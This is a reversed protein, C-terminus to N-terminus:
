PMKHFPDADSYRRPLMGRTSTLDRAGSTVSHQANPHNSADNKLLLYVYSDVASVTASIAMMCVMALGCAIRLEFGFAIYLLPILEGGGGVGAAASMATVAVM